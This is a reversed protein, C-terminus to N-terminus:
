GKAIKNLVYRNWLSRHKLLVSSQDSLWSTNFAGTTRLPPDKYITTLPSYSSYCIKSSRFCLLLNNELKLFIRVRTSLYGPRTWKDNHWSYSQLHLQSYSMLSIINVSSVRIVQLSVQGIALKDVVSVMYVHGPVFEWRKDSNYMIIVIRGWQSSLRREKYFGM